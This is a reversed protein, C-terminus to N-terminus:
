QIGNRTILKTHTLALNPVRVTSLTFPVSTPALIHVNVSSDVCKIEVLTENVSM